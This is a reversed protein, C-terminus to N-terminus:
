QMYHKSVKHSQFSQLFYSSYQSSESLQASIIGLYSPLANKTGYETSAALRATAVEDDGKTALLQFTTHKDDKM